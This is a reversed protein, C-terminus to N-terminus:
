GTSVATNVAVLNFVKTLGGNLAAVVTGNLNVLSLIGV